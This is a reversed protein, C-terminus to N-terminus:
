ILGRHDLFGQTERVADDRRHEAYDLGVVCLKVAYNYRAPYMRREYDEERKGQGRLCVDTAMPLEKTWRLGSM